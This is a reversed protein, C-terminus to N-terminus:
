RHGTKGFEGPWNGIWYKQEGTLEPSKEGTVPNAFHMPLTGTEPWPHYWTTPADATGDPATSYGPTISGDKGYAISFVHVYKFKSIKWVGNERVYGMEYEGANLMQRTEPFGRLIPTLVRVRAKATKRDHAVTIVDMAAVQFLANGFTQPHDRPVGTADGYAAFAKIFGKKGYYVGRGGIELSEAHDSILSMAQAHMDTSNYYNYAYQLRRIDEIDQQEAVKAELIELRKLLAQSSSDKATAAMATTLSMALAVVVGFGGGFGISVKSKM